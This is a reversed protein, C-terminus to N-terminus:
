NAKLLSILVASALILSGGTWFRWSLLEQLIVIGLFSTFIMEATLFLGGEWSRCYKFGQNMLIQALISSVAMGAVMLWDTGTAPLNPAAIYGPLAILAGLMCFYFYIVVPGNKARLMKILNVTIGAFIASNLGMIYGIFNGDLNFDLLVAVGCLTMIVCFIEGRTIRDRFILYSFLAAFAPFSFFLVMATSLPINRIAIILSFFAACGTICRIVMLKLNDTKFLENIQRGFVILLLVFGIGWRYFAIDWIRYSPGLLKILCDLVAFGFAASLMLLPGRVSRIGTHSLLSFRTIRPTKLM